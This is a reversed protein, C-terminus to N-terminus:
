LGMDLRYIENGNGSGVPLASSEGSVQGMAVENRTRITQIDRYLSRAELSDFRENISSLLSLSGDYDGDAAMLLAANYGSPLHGQSQWSSLFIERAAALNGDSAAEYAAEVSENKPKNSMLSASYTRETPVYQMIIGDCFSRIMRRFLYSADDLRMWASDLYGKRTESDAFTRQSVIRGTSTDIVTLVYEISATQTYRYDFEIIRHRVGDEDVWWEERPVSYVTEDVSMMRIRPILVADYGLSHLSSSIDGGLGGDAIVRDTEGPPLLNFFGTSSLATYLQDTAYAAVSAATSYSYGSHIRLGSAHIDAARVWGTSPIFGNYPVVSAVALNRYGGMDVVSPQMYRLSVSTACSSLLVLMAALLAASVKRM